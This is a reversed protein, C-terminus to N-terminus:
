LDTCDDADHKGGDMKTGCNPCYPTRIQLCDYGTIADKGCVSCQIDVDEGYVWEGHRVPEAEITQAANIMKVVDVGENISYIITKVLTNDVTEKLADADILRM